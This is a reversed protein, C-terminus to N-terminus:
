FRWPPVPPVGATELSIAKDVELDLETQAEMQKLRRRKRRLRLRKVVTRSGWSLLMMIVSLLFFALLSEEWQQLITKGDYRSPIWVQLIQLSTLLLAAQVFISLYAIIRTCTKILRRLSQHPKPLARRRVYGLKLIDFRFELLYNMLAFTCGLPWVMGFFTFFTFHLLQELYEDLVCFERRMGQHFADQLNGATHAGDGATYASNPSDPCMFADEGTETMIPACPGDSALATPTCTESCTPVVSHAGHIRQPEPSPSRSRNKTDGDSKRNSRPPRIPRVLYLPGGVAGCDFLFILGALRWFGRWCGCCASGSLRMCCRLVKRVPGLMAVDREQVSLDESNRLMDTILRPVIVKILMAVLMSVLMPGKMARELLKRRLKYSVRTKICSLAHDGFIMYDLTGKCTGQHGVGWQPVFFFALVLVFGVKGFMEFLVCQIFFAFEYQSQTSWNQRDCVFSSMAKSVSLLLELLIGESVSPCIEMLFGAIEGRYHVPTTCEENGNEENIRTCQGWTFIVWMEFWFLGVFVAQVALGYFFVFPVLMFTKAWRVWWSEKPNHLARYMDMVDGAMEGFENAREAMIEAVEGAVGGALNTLRESAANAKEQVALVGGQVAQVGGQVVLTAPHCVEQRANAVPKAYLEGNDAKVAFSAERWLDPQTLSVASLTPTFHRMLEENAQSPTVVNLVFKGDIEFEAQPVPSDTKRSTRTSPCMEEVGAPSGARVTAEAAEGACGVGGVCSVAPGSVDRSAENVSASYTAFRDSSPLTEPDESPSTTGHAESAEGGGGYALLPPIASQEEMPQTVTIQTSPSPQTSPSTTSSPTTSFPTTMPHSHTREVEEVEEFPDHFEIVMSVFIILVLSFVPQLFTGYDDEGIQMRILAFTLGAMGLFWLCRVYHAIWSFYDATDVGFHMSLGHLWSYPVGGDDHVGSKSGLLPWCLRKVCGDSRSTAHIVMAVNFCPDHLPWCRRPHSKSALSSKTSHVMSIHYVVRVLDQVSAKVYDELRACIIVIMVPNEPDTREGGCGQLRVEAWDVITLAQHAEFIPLLKKVTLAAVYQKPQACEILDVKRVENVYGAYRRGHMAAISRGKRMEDALFRLQQRRKRGTHM